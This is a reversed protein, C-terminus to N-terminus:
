AAQILIQTLHYLTEFKRSILSICNCLIHTDCPKPNLQSSGGIIGLRGSIELRPPMWIEIFKEKFGGSISQSTLDVRGSIECHLDILSM